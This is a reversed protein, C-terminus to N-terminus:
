EQEERIATRKKELLDNMNIAAFNFRGFPFYSTTNAVFARINTICINIASHQIYTKKDEFSLNFSEDFDFVGVGEVDIYYGPEKNPNISVKSFVLIVKNEENEQIGFDIDIAYQNQIDEFNGNNTAEIPTVECTSNLITFNKLILPSKIAEM